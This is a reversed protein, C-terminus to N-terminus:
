KADGNKAKPKAAVKKPGPDDNEPTIVRTVYGEDTPDKKEDLDVYKACDSGVLAQAIHSAIEFQDGEDCHGHGAVIVSRTLEIKRTKTAM